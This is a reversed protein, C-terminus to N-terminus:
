LKLLTGVTQEIEAAEQRTMRELFDEYYKLGIAQQSTLSARTRIDHLTRFGQTSCM